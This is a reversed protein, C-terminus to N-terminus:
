KGLSIKVFRLCSIRCGLLFEFHIDCLFINQLMVGIVVRETVIIYAV